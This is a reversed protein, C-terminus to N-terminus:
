RISTCGVASSGPGLQRSAPSTEITVRRCRELLQHGGGRVRELLAQVAARFRHRDNWGPESRLDRDRSHSRVDRRLCRRRTVRQRLGPDADILREPRLLYRWAARLDQVQRGRTATSALYSELGSRSEDYSTLSRSWAPPLPSLIPSGSWLSWSPECHRSKNHPSLNKGGPRHDSRASPPRDQFRFASHLFSPSRCSFESRRM